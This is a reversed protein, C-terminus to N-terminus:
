IGATHGTFNLMAVRRKGDTVLLEHIGTDGTAFGVDACEPINMFAHLLMNITGGHAVAAITQDGDASCLLESLMCKTRFRFEYMSEQEYVSRHPPLDPVNPYKENAEDYPLGARLGNNFEMLREDPTLPVGTADSLRQATQRARKLTSCYIASLKYHAAVYEAMAQAQREGRETLSFDARGECVNLIDAESEGHRILLLKM